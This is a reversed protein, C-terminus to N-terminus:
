KNVGQLCRSSVCCPPSTGRVPGYSIHMLANATSPVERTSRLASNSTVGTWWVGFSNNQPSFALCLSCFVARTNDNYMLWSRETGNRCCMWKNIQTPHKQFFLSLENRNPRSFYNIAPEVETESPVHASSTSAQMQAQTHHVEPKKIEQEMREMQESAVDEAESGIDDDSTTSVEGTISNDENEGSTTGSPVDSSSAPVSASTSAGAM